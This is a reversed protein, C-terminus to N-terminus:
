ITPLLFYHFISVSAYSANSQYMVARVPCINSSPFRNIAGNLWDTSPIAPITCYSPDSFWDDAFQNKDLNQLLHLVGSFKQM